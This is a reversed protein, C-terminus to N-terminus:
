NKSVIKWKKDVVSRTAAFGVGIANIIENISPDIEIIQGVTVVMIEKEDVVENGWFEWVGDDHVTIYVIPSKNLIVYKSSLAVTNKNINISM